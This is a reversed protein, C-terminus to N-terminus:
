GLRLINEFQLAEIEDERHTVYILGVDDQQGLRGLAQLMRARNGGSLGHTPEDLLLLAPRKVMARALLVLKQQGHSLHFFNEASRPPEFRLRRAANRSAPPPPTVLDEIGLTDVWERAERDQSPTVARYLGISDHFGSCVVEWTSVGRGDRTSMGAGRVSPDSFDVYEM